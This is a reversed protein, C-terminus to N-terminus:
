DKVEPTAFGFITIVHSLQFTDISNGEADEIGSVLLDVDVINNDGDVNDFEEDEEDYEALDNLLEVDDESLEIRVSKGNGYFEAEGSLS